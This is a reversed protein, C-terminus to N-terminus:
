YRIEFGCRYTIRTTVAKGNEDIPPGWREGRLSNICAESFAYGPPDESIARFRSPMGDPGIQLRVVAQGEVGEARAKKPYNRELKRKLSPPVPAKSLDGVDVVTGTGTGGIVGGVVGDRSRGTVAADPSGIPGEVSKGSAQQTTWSSDGDGDNTLVINDFAVPTERAAAPPEEPTAKKPAKYTKPKPPPKVKEPEEAPLPEPEPEPEAEEEEVQPEDEVFSVDVSDNPMTSNARSPAAPMGGILAAHTAIALLVWVAEFAWTTTNGFRTAM